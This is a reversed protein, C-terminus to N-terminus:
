VDLTPGVRYETGNEAASMYSTIDHLLFPAMQQSKQDSNTGFNLLPALMM